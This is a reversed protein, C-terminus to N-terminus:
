VSLFPCNTWSNQILTVFDTITSLVGTAFGHELAHLKFDSQRHSQSKFALWIVKLLSGVQEM